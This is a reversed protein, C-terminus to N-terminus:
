LNHPEIVFCAGGLKNLASDNTAYLSFGIGALSVRALYLGIGRGNPRKSYFLKFIDDLLYEDIPVGSNQILLRNGDADFRIRRTEVPRLWYIANNIINLVAPKLVSDYSFFELVKAASTIELSINLELLQEGFFRDSYEFFEVGKIPRRVRGTTRYLPQLLKYNGELHEFANILQQYHRRAQKEDCLDNEIVKITTALQSYLVNFQHDIIEVAIGLQALERTKEWENEIEEYKLKYYGVLNDENIDLTLSSLHSIFPDLRKRVSERASEFANETLKLSETVQEVNGTTPILDQIQIRFGEVTKIREGSLTNKLNRLIADLRTDAESFLDSLATIYQNSRNTYEQLLEREKLKSVAKRSISDSDAVITTQVSELQKEFEYIRKRQSETPKYRVPYNISLSRIRMKYSEIQQLLGEIEEYLVNQQQLKNSLISSSTTIERELRSLENPLTRLKENFTKREAKEKEKELKATQELEKLAEKQQRKIDSSAKTGFYRKALDDFFHQLDQKFDRYAANNIFGERGAKDRLRPNRRRSLDIYGFMRRHSFYYYGAGRSRKEEFELFDQDRRGYPLIRFGDRYLYLGGFLDLKREFRRRVEGSLRTTEVDGEEYGIKLSFPGYSAPKDIRRHPRFEHAISQDFIRITGTFCGFENFNGDILHDTIEFDSKEFFDRKDIFDYRGQESIIWIRTNCIPAKPGLTNFLATLSSRLYDVTGQDFEDQQTRDMVSAELAFLQPDPNFIIFKTGHGGANNLTQLIEDDFFNPLEANQCSEIIEKKLNLQESWIDKQGPLVPSFNEIFEKKLSNFITNFSDNPNISRLPINVEELFLNYNELIRWDFFVAQLTGGKQKTLMLMPSGLYAVSLRGIGKEGMKIRAPKELTEPGQQDPIDRSKSDTGLVIWRTLIDERSMGKGDDSIIFLPRELQEYGTLYLYAELNDAYADYGNKWLETIATPLDSIQGKGLLEVARAKARFQPM